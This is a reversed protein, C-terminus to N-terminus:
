RTGTGASYFVQGQETVTITVRAVRQVIALLLWMPAWLGCTVISVLLHAVHNCPSGTAMVASRPTMAEVRYGAATYQAMAAHLAVDPSMRPSQPGSPAITM